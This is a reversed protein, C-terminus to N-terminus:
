RQGLHALKSSLHIASPKPLGVQTGYQNLPDWTCCPAFGYEPYSALGKIKMDQKM